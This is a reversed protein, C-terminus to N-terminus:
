WSKVPSARSSEGFNGWIIRGHGADLSRPVLPAHLYVHGANAVGSGLVCLLFGRLPRKLSLCFKSTPLQWILRQALGHAAADLFLRGLSSAFTPLRDADSRPFPRKREQVPSDRCDVTRVDDSPSIPPKLLDLRPRNSAFHVQHPGYELRRAPFPLPDLLVGHRVNAPRLLRCAARSAYRWGFFGIQDCREPEVTTQRRLRGGLPRAQGEQEGKLCGHPRSLDQPEGGNERVSVLLGIWAM